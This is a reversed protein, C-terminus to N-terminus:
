LAEISMCRVLERAEDLNEVRHVNKHHQWTGYSSHNGVVVVEKGLALGMGAEILCGKLTEGEEAYLVIVDAQAVDEHYQQWFTKAYTPTDPVDDILYPWRCIIDAFAWLNGERIAIWNRAYHTKSAFYVKM